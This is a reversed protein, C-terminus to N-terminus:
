LGRDSPCLIASHIRRWLVCIFSFKIYCKLERLHCNSSCTYFIQTSELRPSRFGPTATKFTPIQLRYTYFDTYRKALRSNLLRLWRLPPPRGYPPGAPHSKFVFENQIKGRRKDGHKKGVEQTRKKPISITARCNKHYTKIFTSFSKHLM